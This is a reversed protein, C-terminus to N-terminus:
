LSKQHKQYHNITSHDVDLFRAIEIARYRSSAWEIFEDRARIKQLKRSRDRVEIGHKASIIQAMQEMEDIEETFPEFSPLQFGSM